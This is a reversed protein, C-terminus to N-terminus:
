AQDDPGSVDDPDDAATGGPRAFATGALIALFVLVLTPLRRMLPHDSACLRAAVM